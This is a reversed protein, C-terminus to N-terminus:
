EAKFNFDTLDGCVFAILSQDDSPLDSYNEELWEKLQEEDWACLEFSSCYYNAYCDIANYGGLIDNAKDALRAYLIGCLDARETLPIQYEQLYSFCEGLEENLDLDLEECVDAIQVLDTFGGFDFQDVICKCVEAYKENDTM